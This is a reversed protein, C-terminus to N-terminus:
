KCETESLEIRYLFAAEGARLGLRQLHRAFEARNESSFGEWEVIEEPMGGGIVIKDKRLIRLVTGESLRVREGIAWDFDRRAKTLVTTKRGRHIRDIQEQPLDLVPLDEKPVSVPIESTPEPSPAPTPSPEIPIAEVSVPTTEIRVPEPIEEATVTTATREEREMPKSQRVVPKTHTKKAPKPETRTKAKVAKAVKTESKNKQSPKLEKLKRKKKPVLPLPLEEM